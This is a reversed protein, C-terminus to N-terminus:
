DKGLDVTMFGEETSFRPHVRSEGVLKQNAVPLAYSNDYALSGGPQQHIVLVSFHFDPSALMDGIVGLEPCESWDTLGYMAPSELDHDRGVMVMDYSDGLSSVVQTTEVGDKVIEEKYSVSGKNMALSRFDHILEIESFDNNNSSEDHISSKHKFHIMTVNLDPHEAIRICFALAEADDPGGVFLVAVNKWTQNMLVSRCGSTEGRDIFMGVSCPAKELVNLNINRIAPNVYDVTGDIAYQKHFPIVILTAKKDLALTCVDDNISSFPAVATFHQAMVTGQNQQEFRLFANAIHTSKATNPDLKNMQHHPVLVAHARGKLEILHLTCVSIPSFRTPFSAELLNVLSPINEVDYLCLLLRLQLNRQRTNLITRKSASKYRKSPDYLHVVLFRSVGTVLLLTIIVMNFCQTNLIKADKYMISTYLEIVGQCCMLFALCLADRAQTKCYVSAGATGLFKCGYTVLIVVEMMNAHSDGVVFFNTELGSISIFCPLLLTTAFADLKTALGTGLPPGDPLSVGLWFAGFAAHVGLTEAGLSVLFMIVLIPFFPIEDNKNVNQAKKETLWIIVPRCVFMIIFLLAVIWMIAGFSTLARQRRYLDYVLAALWNCSECVIACNTALRGLESNLFNLEALVTTTVPFSTMSSLPIAVTLGNMVPLPLDYTRNLFMLALHGVTFPFAYSTAGILFAKSGAKRIIRPDIRLGLLFLHIIFGVNSLTQLTIKGGVPLFMETYIASQGLVSPGLIIGALVQASIIGQNLPRIFRFVLRSTLIILAMQMLLLPMSYKLPDSGLFVGRSTLMHNRQCILEEVVAPGHVRARQMSHKELVATTRLDMDLDM